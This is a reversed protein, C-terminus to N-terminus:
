YRILKCMFLFKFKNGLLTKYLLDQCTPWMITQYWHCHWRGMTINHLQRYLTMYGNHCTLPHKRHHWPSIIHFMKSATIFSSSSKSYLFLEISIYEYFFDCSSFSFGTLQHIKSWSIWNLSRMMLIWRSM